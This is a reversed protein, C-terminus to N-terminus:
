AIYINNPTYNKGRTNDVVFPKFSGDPGLDTKKLEQGNPGYLVADKGHGNWIGGGLSTVHNTQISGGKLAITGYNEIGGGMQATNHDISGGKLTMTGFNEIGGGGNYGGGDLEVKNQEISGGNMTFTGKPEDVWRGTPDAERGTVYVGGGESNGGAGAIVHNNKIHGNNLTVKGADYIGGGQAVGGDRDDNVDGGTITINGNLTLDGHPTVDVVNGPADTAPTLTANGDLTLKKEVVIGSTYGKDVVGTQYGLTYTGSLHLTAGNPAQTIAKRLAPASGAPVTIQMPDDPPTVTLTKAMSAPKWNTDGPVTATIKAGGPGTFTLKNGSISAVNTNSSPYTVAEGSTTHAQLDM